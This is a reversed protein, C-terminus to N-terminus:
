LDSSFGKLVLFVNKIGFSSGLSRQGGLFIMKIYKKNIKIKNKFDRCLTM